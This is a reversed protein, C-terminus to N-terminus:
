ASGTFRADAAALWGDIDRLARGTLARKRALAKEQGKLRKAGPQPTLPDAPPFLGFNVNM